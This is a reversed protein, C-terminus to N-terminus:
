VHCSNVNWCLLLTRKCKLLQYNLHKTTNEESRLGWNLSCSLMVELTNYCSMILIITVFSNKTSLLFHHYESGEKSSHFEVWQCFNHYLCQPFHWCQLVDSFGRSNTKVHQCFIIWSPEYLPYLHWVTADWGTDVLELHMIPLSWDPATSNQKYAHDCILSIFSRCCHCLSFPCNSVFFPFFVKNLCLAMWTWDYSIWASFLVTLFHLFVVLIFCYFGEGTWDKCSYTTYRAWSTAMSGTYRCTFELAHLPM